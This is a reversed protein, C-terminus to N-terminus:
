SKVCAPNGWNGVVTVHVYKFSVMDALKLTCYLPMLCVLELVQGEGWISLRWLRSLNSQM